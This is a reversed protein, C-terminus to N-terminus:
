RPPYTSASRVPVPNQLATAFSSPGPPRGTWSSWFFNLFSFVSMGEGTNRKRSKPRSTLWKRNENDTSVPNMAVVHDTLTKGGGDPVKLFMKDNRIKFEIEQGVPLM